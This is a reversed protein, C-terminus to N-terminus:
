PTHAAIKKIAAARRDPDLECGIYQRKLGAAAAPCSGSGVFFDAVMEGPITLREILERYLEVPREVLLEREAQGVPPIRLVNSRGPIVMKPDGKFAHIAIDYGRTFYRDPRNTFTRGDSRDWIIPIEDVTFGASRFTSKVVEYWSIGCFWVLWGNPKLVRYIDPAMSLIQKYANKDDQYATATGITGSVRDDYDVGFPPDTIVAHIINDPLTKIWEVSNGLAIRDEISSYQEPNAAVDVRRQANAVKAQLLKMAQYENKAKGLEPMAEIAKAVMISRSLNGKDMGGIAQSTQSLTWNPDRARRLQDLLAIAKVRDQWAMDLREINAELEIERARVEDLDRRLIVPVDEWGLDVVAMYRHLGDVLTFGAGGDYDVILPQLLGFVEISAKRKAVAEKDADRFREPPVQIDTLAITRVQM